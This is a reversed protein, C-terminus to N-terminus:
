YKLLTLVEKLLLHFIQVYRDKIEIYGMNYTEFVPYIYFLLNCTTAAQDVWYVLTRYKSIANEKIGWKHAIM